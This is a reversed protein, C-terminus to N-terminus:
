RAQRPGPFLMMTSGYRQWCGMSVSREGDASLAKGIAIPIRSGNAARVIEMARAVEVGDVILVLKADAADDALFLWKMIAVHAGPKRDLPKSYLRVM